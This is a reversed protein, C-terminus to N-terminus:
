GAKRPSTRVFDIFARMGASLHRNRLYYIALGPFPPTWDALLQVLSGTELDRAALQGHSIAWALGPARPMWFLARATLCWGGKPPLASPKEGASLNGGTDRLVPCVSSFANMLM